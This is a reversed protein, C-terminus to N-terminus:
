SSQSSTFLYLPFEIKLSFNYNVICSILGYFFSCLKTHNSIQDNKIRFLSVQVNEIHIGYAFLLCKM